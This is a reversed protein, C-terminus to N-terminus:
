LKAELAAVKAEAAEKLKAETTGFWKTLLQKAAAFIAASKAVAFGSVVGGSVFGIAFEM